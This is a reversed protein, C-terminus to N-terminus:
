SKLNAKMSLHIQLIPGKPTKVNAASPMAIFSVISFRYVSLMILEVFLMPTNELFLPKIDRSIVKKIIKLLIIMIPSIHKIVETILKIRQCM